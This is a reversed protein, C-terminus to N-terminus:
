LDFASFHEYWVSPDVPVMYNRAATGKGHGSQLYMVPEQVKASLGASIGGRRMSLGSFHETDVGILELSKIVGRTVQQRSLMERQEGAGTFFFPLCHRCRAGPNEAKTCRPSVRLAYREAHRRLRRALDWEANSALGVRCYMGKRATDQKRRYIHVALTGLYMAHFAADHDWLMDCVQLFSLEVVRMCLVTGLVCVLVDREQCETLGVLELLRKVHHTGIPFMIRSPTGKVAAVAKYLRKFEGAGGLPMPFGFRRHRDEISSWLNKITGAACGVMLMEQTLATLTTKSMPLLDGVVEHAVAWTVVTRWMAQYGKRTSAELCAPAVCEQFVAALQGVSALRGQAGKVSIAPLIGDGREVATQASQDDLLQHRLGEPLATFMPDRALVGLDMITPFGAVSWQLEWVTAPQLVFAVMDRLAECLEVAVEEAAEPDHTYVAVESEEVEGLEAQRAARKRSRSSM